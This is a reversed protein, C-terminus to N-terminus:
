GMGKLMVFLLPSSPRAGMVIFNLKSLMIIVVIELVTINIKTMM